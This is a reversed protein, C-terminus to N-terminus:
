AVVDRRRFGVVGVVVLAVGIAVLVVLPGPAVADLPYAPTHSFPSLDQLWSPLDLLAGLQGVVLSWVVLAWGLVVLRPVWGYLATMFGVVVLVAPLQVLAAGLVKGTYGWDGAAIGNGVGMALGGVVLLVVTGAAVVLVNVLLYTTRPVSRGLILEARGATEESHLRSLSAVVFAGAALAIFGMITVVFVDQMAGAGGLQEIIQQVQPSDGAIDGVSSLLFGVLLLYAAVPVAWTVLTQGQLRWALAQVSRLGPADAPGPRDAILGAGLDRTAQIRYGVGAGLALVAVGLLVLGLRDDGYPDIKQGWGMPSLWSLWSLSDQVDAAARLAYTGVLVSVAISSATRAVSALQVTVAAIGVGALGSVLNQFAFALAGLAGQGVLPLAVGFSAVGVMVLAALLGATLPALRGVRLSGVLELRGAEEERRTHRVTALAGIIGVVLALFAGIRWTAMAGVSEPHLAPGLLALFATNSGVTAALQQREVVTPYASQIAALTSAVMLVLIIVTVPIRVRDRRLALRLLAGTRTLRGGGRAVTPTAPALAVATM